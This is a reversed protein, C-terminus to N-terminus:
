TWLSHWTIGWEALMTRLLPLSIGVVNHHDGEISSIFAGGYGDITFGGAVGLPEGTGVYADIEDDGLDAFHVITCATSTAEDTGHRLCHGTHLIGSRGRMARWRSRAEAPEVPKGLVESGVSLVSDCGIVLAEPDALRGHVARCKMAALEAALAQADDSAPRTEDVGSVVVEPEIGARRLTALRGQSASALVLRM